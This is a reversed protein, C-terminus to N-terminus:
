SIMGDVEVYICFMINQLVNKRLLLNNSLKEILHSFFGVKSDGHSM